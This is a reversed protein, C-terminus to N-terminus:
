GLDDGGDKELAAETRQQLYKFLEHLGAFGVEEGTRSDQLSARWAPVVDGDARWLRLLFAFYSPTENPM